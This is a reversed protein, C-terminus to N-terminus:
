ENTVMQKTIRERLLKRARHYQSKSTGETIGISAAIMRHPMDEMAYMVFIERCGDPLSRIERNLTELSVTEWWGTEEEALDQMEDEQWEKWVFSKKSAKICTNVVVQKMWGAFAEPQKLQGLNSFATLFADHLLDEALPINGAMRVCINFMDKSYHNYLWAQADADGNAAKLILATQINKPSTL